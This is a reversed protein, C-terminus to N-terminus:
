SYTIDHVEISFVFANKPDTIYYRELEWPINIPIEDPEEPRPPRVIEFSLGDIGPVYWRHEREHYTVSPYTKALEQWSAAPRLGEATAGQYGDQLDIETVRQQVLWIRSWGYHFHVISGHLGQLFRQFLPKGLKKLVDQRSDGIIINGAGIKPVIPAQIYGTANTNM